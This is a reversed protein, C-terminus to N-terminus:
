PIAEQKVSYQKLQEAVTYFKSLSSGKIFIFSDDEIYKEVEKAILEKEEFWQIEPLENALQQFAEGFLFIQDAPSDQIMEKLKYHEQFSIEGLDAVEGLVLLSNGTYFKRKEKFTQLGNKLALISSNHTDDILTVKMDDNEIVCKELNRPLNHYEQFCHIYDNVAYGLADIALLSAMINQIRGLNDAVVKFTYLHRNLSVTIESDDRTIIREVLCCDATSDTLSYTKIQLNQSNAERLIKWLYKEEIDGNIIATAGNKTHRFLETKCSLNREVGYKAHANGYSTMIAVDSRYRYTENGYGLRNMCGVSAEILAITPNTILGLAIDLNPLHLSSNGTNSTPKEKELLQELLMRVSSKGASGTITVMKGSANETMCDALLSATQLGNEVIYQPISDKYQEIPTDTIILGIKHIANSNLLQENRHLPNWNPLYIMNKLDEKSLSVYVANKCQTEEIVKPDISMFDFNFNPIIDPQLFYGKLNQDFWELWKSNENATQTKSKFADIEYYLHGAEDKKASTLLKNSNLTEIDQIATQRDKENIFYPQWFTDLNFNWFPYIQIKNKQINWKLFYGYPFNEPKTFELGNNNFIGNGISYFVRIGDIEEVEQIKHPGSGIILDAGKEVLIKALQRQSVLVNKFDVGWHALVVVQTEPNRNKFQKIEELLIGDLTTVGSRNTAYFDFDLDRGKRHWYGSFFALKQNGYTVIVPKIADSLNEGSGITSIEAAKLSDITDLLAEEGYDKAHNNGLNIMKVFRNKLEKITKEKDGGLYFVKRENYCPENPKILVGEYTVINFDEKKIKKSLKEFSHTYGYKQLADEQNKLKRKKTYFEGFYTDALINIIPNELEIEEIKEDSVLTTLLALEVTQIYNQSNIVLSCVLQGSVERFILADSQQDGWFISAIADGKLDMFSQPQYKKGQVIHIRNKIYSFTSRALKLYALGIKYYDFLNTKQRNAQRGTLSIQSKKSINLKIALQNIKKRAEKESGYLQCLARICDPANLSIAQNLVDILLREEGRVGHTSRLADKEVMAGRSFTVVQDPSLKKDQLDTLILL